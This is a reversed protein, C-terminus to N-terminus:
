RCFKESQQAIDVSPVRSRRAAFDLIISSKKTKRTRNSSFILEWKTAANTPILCDAGIRSLLFRPSILSDFLEQLAHKQLESPKQWDPEAGKRLMENLTGCRKALAKIFRRYVNWGGLISRLKQRDDPFPAQFFELTKYIYGVLKGAMFNHWLYEVKEILLACKRLKLSEPAKLSWYSASWIRWISIFRERSFSLTMYMYWASRGGYERCFSKRHESFVRQHMGWVLLCKNHRYTGHQHQLVDYEWRWQCKTLLWM